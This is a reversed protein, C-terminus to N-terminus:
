SLALSAVPNQTTVVISSNDAHGNYFATYNGTVRLGAATEIGASTPTFLVQPFRIRHLLNAGKSWKAAIDFIVGNRWDGLLTDDVLLATLSGTLAIQGPAADGISGTQNFTRTTAIQNSCSFSFDTVNAMTVGGREIVATGNRMHTFSTHETPTADTPANNVVEDIAIWDLTCRLGGNPQMSGSITNLLAGRNHYTKTYDMEREIAYSPLDNASDVKSVHSYPNSAGTTVTDGLLADWLYPAHEYTMNVPIQIQVSTEDIEPQSVDRRGIITDPTWLQGDLGGSVGPAFPLILGASGPVGWASEPVLHIRAKWGQSAVSM